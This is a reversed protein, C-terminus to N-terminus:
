STDEADDGGAIGLVTLLDALTGAGAPVTDAGRVSEAKTGGLRAWASAVREARQEEALDPMTGRVELEEQAAQLEAGTLWDHFTVREGQVSCTVTRGVRGSVLRTVRGADARLGRVTIVTASRDM